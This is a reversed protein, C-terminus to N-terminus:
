KCDTSASFSYGCTWTILLTRPLQLPLARPLPGSLPLTTTTITKKEEIHMFHLEITQIM